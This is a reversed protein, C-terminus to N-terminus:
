EKPTTTKAATKKATTKKAATKKAPTRKAATKKAPTPEPTSDGSEEASSVNSQAEELAKAEAAAREKEAEVVADAADKVEQAHAEALKDAKASSKGSQAKELDGLLSEYREAVEVPVRYGGSETQVVEKHQDLQAAATLLLLATQQSRGKIKTHTQETM